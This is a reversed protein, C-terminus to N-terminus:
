GKTGQDRGQVRSFIGHKFAQLFFLFHCFRQSESAKPRKSEEDRPGKTGQDRGQVRSFIGHKFAQLFFIFHCFRQDEAGQSQDRGKRTGRGRGPAVDGQAAAAVMHCSFPLAARPAPGLNVQTLVRIPSNAGAFMRNLGLGLVLIPELIPPVWGSCYTRFHTSDFEGAGFHSGM